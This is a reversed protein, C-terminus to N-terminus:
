GPARNGEQVLNLQGAGHVHAGHQRQTEAAVAMDHGSFVLVTIVISLSYAIRM